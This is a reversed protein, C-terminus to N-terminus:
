MGISCSTHPVEGRGKRHGLVRAVLNLLPWVRALIESMCPCVCACACVCVCVCACACACVCVPVLVRMRVRLRMCVGVSECMVESAAHM